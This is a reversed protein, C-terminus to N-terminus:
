PQIHNTLNKEVFFVNNTTFEVRCGCVIMCWEKVLRTKRLSLTDSFHVPASLSKPTNGVYLNENTKLTKM